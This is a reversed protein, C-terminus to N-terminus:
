IHCYIRVLPSSVIESIKSILFDPLMEEHTIDPFCVALDSVAFGGNPFFRNFSDSQGCESCHLYDAEDQSSILGGLDSRPQQTEDNNNGYFDFQARCHPCVAVADAANEGGHILDPQDFTKFCVGTYQHSFEKFTEPVIDTLGKDTFRNGMDNNGIDETEPAIWGQELFYNYLKAALEERNPHFSREPILYYFYSTM